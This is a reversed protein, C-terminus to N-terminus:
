VAGAWGARPDFGSSQEAQAYSKLAESSAADLHTPIQVKLTALLDGTPEKAPAIGRGRVRMVQDAASGAPIRISVTGDLTPVTITAGLALESFSVPVDVLLNNGDRQFVKDPTINIKVFLDGPPAGRLGAEGKGNLRVKQGDKIGAPVRVNLTRTRTVVGSGGCDPCPDDIITGTGGCNTCPQSFQFAGQTSHRFGSGNCEPCTRPATGPRAGSGHCTTCATKSTIRIPVTAGKAADRFSITISTTINAGGNSQQSSESRHGGGRRQNFLGGLIDGIGGAGGTANQTAGGFIDGLDGIDFGDAGYTYSHGGGPTFGTFGGAGQGYGNGFGGPAGFGGKGGFGGFGSSLMARLEDYEKREKPDSLVSNAESVRKFREEAAKDGPNADPHLSRALKRYAKKIEDQTADKSVGLEKYFDKDAWERQM